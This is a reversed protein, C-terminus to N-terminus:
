DLKWQCRLFYTRGYNIPLSGAATSHTGGGGTGSVAINSVDFLNKIGASLTIREQWFTKQLSFDALTYDSYQRTNLNGESDLALDKREGTYNM